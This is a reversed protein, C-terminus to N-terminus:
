RYSTTMEGGENFWLFPALIGCLLLDERAILNVKHQIEGLVGVDIDWCHPTFPESKLVVKRVKTPQM